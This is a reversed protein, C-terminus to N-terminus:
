LMVTQYENLVVSDTIVDCKSVETPIRSAPYMVLTNLPIKFINSLRDLNNKNGKNFVNQLDNASCKSPICLGFHFIYFKDAFMNYTLLLKVENMSQESKDTMVEGINDLTFYPRVLCYKGRIIDNDTEDTQPSKIALCQGYEGFSTMVGAKVGAPIKASADFVTM